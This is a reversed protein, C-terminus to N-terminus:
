RSAQKWLDFRFLSYPFHPPADDQFRRDFKYNKAYGRWPSTAQGVAGRRYQTLSGFLNIYPKGIESTYRHANFGGGDSTVMIAAHITIANTGRIQLQNKAILGLKDDVASINFNTAWPNPSTASAYTISNSIFIADEAAVTAQGNLVGTVYADGDVYIAGNLSALSVTTTSGGGAALAYTLTGDSNFKLYYNGTLDLGDPDNAKSEVDQIYNTTWQEELNLPTANLTLGAEFVSSNAGGNYDVSSAASYVDDLFRPSGTVHIQDNIYVPGDLIDGTGYNVNNEYQSANLNSAFSLIMSRSTVTQRAGNNAVARSQILYRKQMSIINNWGPYDLVDVAYSGGSTTGSLVNSGVMFGGGAKPIQSFPRRVKDAIAKTREMGAEAAWFAQVTGVSRGTELAAAASLRLLGIGFVSLVVLVVLVIALIAGEKGPGSGGTKRHPMHASNM